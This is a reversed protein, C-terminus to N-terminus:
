VVGTLERAARAHDGRPLILRVLQDPTLTERTPVARGGFVARGDLLEVAVTVVEVVDRRRRCVVHLVNRQVDEFVDGPLCAWRRFALHYFRLGRTPYLATLAVARWELPGIVTNEHGEFVRARTRERWRRIARSM